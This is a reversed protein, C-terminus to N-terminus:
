RCGFEYLLRLRHGAALALDGREGVLDCRFDRAAEAVPRAGDVATELSLRGSVVDASIRTSGSLISSEVEGKGLSHEVVSSRCSGSHPPSRGYRDRWRLAHTSVSAPNPSVGRCPWLSRRKQLRAPKQRRSPVKAHCRLGVCGTRLGSRLARSASSSRALRCRRLACDRDRRVPPASSRGSPSAAPPDAPVAPFSM